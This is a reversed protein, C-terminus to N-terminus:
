QFPKPPTTSLGNADATHTNGILAPSTHVQLVASALHFSLRRRGKPSLPFLLPPIQLRHGHGCTSSPVINKKFPVDELVRCHPMWGNTWQPSLPLVPATNGHCQSLLPRPYFSSAQSVKELPVNFKHNRFM